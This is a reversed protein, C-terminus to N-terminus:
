FFSTKCLNRTVLKAFSEQKEDGNKINDKDSKSKDSFDAYSAEALYVYDALFKNNSM